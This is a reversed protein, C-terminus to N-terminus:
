NNSFYNVGFLSSLVIQSAKFAPSKSDLTESLDNLDYYTEGNTYVNDVWHMKELQGIAIDQADPGTAPPNSSLYGSGTCQDKGDGQGLEHATSGYSNPGLYMFSKIVPYLDGFPTSVVTPDTSTNFPGSYIKIDAENEDLTQTHTYDNTQADYQAIQSNYIPINQSPVEPAFWYLRETKLTGHNTQEILVNFQFIEPRVTYMMASADTMITDSMQEISSPVTYEIDNFSYYGSVGGVSIFCTSGTPIDEFTFKGDSGTVKTITENTTQNYLIATVGSKPGNNNAEDKAIGQIDQHQPVGPVATAYLSTFGNYGENILLLVSDTYYGSSPGQGPVWKVWYKAAYDLPTKKNSNTTDIHVPIDYVIDGNVDSVYTYVTDWTVMEISDPRIFIDVNGLFNGSTDRLMLIGNGRAIRSQMYFDITANRGEHLTCLISDTYYYEKEWKAWYTAEYQVVQKFSFNTKSSSSPGKLSENNKIFKGTFVTGENTQIYYVYVGADMNNLVLYQKDSEFNFSKVLQGTISYFEIKGKVPITFEINIESGINPFVHCENAIHQNISVANDIFVPLNNYIAGGNLTRFYYTSDPITMEMSDPTLYLSVQPVYNNSVIDKTGFIGDAFVTDGKIGTSQARLENANFATLMITAASLYALQSLIINATNKAHHGLRSITDLLNM